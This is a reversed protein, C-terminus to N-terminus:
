GSVIDALVEFVTEGRAAHRELVENGIATQHIPIGMAEFQNDVPDCRKLEIAPGVLVCGPCSGCVILRRHATV